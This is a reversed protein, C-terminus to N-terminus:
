KTIQSSGPYLKDRNIFRGRIFKKLVKAAKLFKDREDEALQQITRIALYHFLYMLHLPISNFPKSKITKVSSYVNIFEIMKM